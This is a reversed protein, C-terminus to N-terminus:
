WECKRRVSKSANTVPTPGLKNGHQLEDKLDLVDQM